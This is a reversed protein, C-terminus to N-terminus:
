ISVTTNGVLYSREFWITYEILTECFSNNIFVIKLSVCAESQNCYLICASVRYRIEAAPASLLEPVTWSLLVTDPTLALARPERPASPYGYGTHLLKVESQQGPVAPWYRNLWSVSVEYSLPNFFTSFKTWNKLFEM